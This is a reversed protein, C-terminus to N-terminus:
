RSAEHGQMGRAGAHGQQRRVTSYAKDLSFLQGMRMRNYMVDFVDGFEQPAMCPVRTMDYLPRADHRDSEQRAHRGLM